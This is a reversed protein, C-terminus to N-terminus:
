KKNNSLLSLIQEKYLNKLDFLDQKLSENEEQKKKIQNELGHNKKKFEEVQKDFKSNEFNMEELQTIKKDKEIQEEKMVLIRNQLLKLKETFFIKNENTNQSESISNEGDM